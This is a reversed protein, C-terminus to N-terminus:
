GGARSPDEVRKYAVLGVPIGWMEGLQAVSEIRQATSGSQRRVIQGWKRGRTVARLHSRWVDAALVVAVLVTTM